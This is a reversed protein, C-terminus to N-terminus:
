QLILLVMVSHLCAVIVLRRERERGQVEVQNESRKGRNKELRKREQWSLHLLHHM